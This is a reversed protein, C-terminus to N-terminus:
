RTIEVKEPIVLDGTGSWVTKGYFLTEGINQNVILTGGFDGAPYTYIYNNGKVQMYERVHNETVNSYEEHNEILNVMRNVIENETIKIPTMKTETYTEIHELTQFDLRTLSTRVIDEKEGEILIVWETTEPDHIGISYNHPYVLIHIDEHNKFELLEESELLYNKVQERNKENILAIQEYNDKEAKELLDEQEPEPEPIMLNGTGNWVTTAYFITEGIHENVIITGGFDHPEYNFIYNPGIKEFNNETINEPATAFEDKELQKEIETILENETIETSKAQNDSYKERIEKTEYDIRFIATRTEGTEQNKEDTHSTKIVIWETAQEINPGGVSYPHAYILTHTNELEKVYEAEETEKVTEIIENEKQNRNEEIIDLLDISNREPPEQPSIDEPIFIFGIGAIALIVIPILYLSAKESKM